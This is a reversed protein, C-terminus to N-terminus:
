TGVSFSTSTPQITSSNGVAIRYKGPVMTWGRDQFTELQKDGITLNVLQSEGPNLIVDAFAALQGPPEHAAQPHTLYVQVVDTGVRHGTNTVVVSVIYGSGRHVVAARRYSYSTYSLGFGFPFLPKTGTAHNFRYGV